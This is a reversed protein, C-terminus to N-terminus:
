KSSHTALIQGKKVLHSNKFVNIKDPGKAMVCFADHCEKRNGFVTQEDFAIRLQSTVLNRGADAFTGLIKNRWEMLLFDEDEEGDGEGDDEDEDDKDKEEKIKGPSTGDKGDKQFRNPQIVIAISNEDEEHLRATIYNCIWSLKVASLVGVTALNVFYVVKEWEPRKVTKGILKSLNDRWAKMDKPLKADLRTTSEFFTPFHM